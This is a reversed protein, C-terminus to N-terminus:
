HNHLGKGQEYKGTEKLEEVMHIIRIKRRYRKFFKNRYDTTDTSIVLPEKHPALSKITLRARLREKMIIAQGSLREASILIGGLPWPKGKCVLGPWVELDPYFEKEPTGQDRCELPVGLAPPRQV